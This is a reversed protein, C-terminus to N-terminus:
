SIDFVASTANIKILKIRTHNSTDFISIRGRELLALLKSSPSLVLFPESKVVSISSNQNLDTFSRTYSLSATM